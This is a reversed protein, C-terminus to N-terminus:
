REVRPQGSAFRAAAAMNSILQGLYEHEHLLSDLAGAELREGARVRADLEALRSQIVTLPIALDHTTADVYSTLARDRDELRAVHERVNVSAEDLARAVSGIEDSGEV